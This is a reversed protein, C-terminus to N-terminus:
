YISYWSWYCLKLFELSCMCKGESLSRGKRPETTRKIRKLKMLKEVKQTSYQIELLCYQNSIEDQTNNGSSMKNNSPYENLANAMLYQISLHQYLHINNLTLGKNTNVQDFIYLM